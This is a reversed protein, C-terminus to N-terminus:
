FPLDNELDDASQKTADTTSAAIAEDKKPVKSKIYFVEKTKGDVKQMKRGNEDLGIEEPNFIWENYKAYAALKKKFSTSSFKLGTKQKLDEFALDKVVFNDLNKHTEEGRMEDTVMDAFFVDAWDKFSAGMESLLNRMSVNGMPPDIKKNQALYFQICQACFNYFQNWEKTDWEKFLTKGNFDDSVSRSERYENDQNFHYYDSFVVYLLRRALSPDLNNPPYNSSFAMKPVKDFNIVFRLGNKNNVELDGTIASFFFGYDLYQNCDDVLIYDTDETIGHYIFDDSTKKPDRGPIYHNKKLLQQIAKQFVSKGSGGHSESIDALKNDMAYVAWPKHPSKYTHLMYGLAFIKNILHEKQEQREEPLLNPGAINFKNAETYAIADKSSPDGLNEEFEKRWHVRSANTLFQLFMNDKAHIAIDPNGHVDKSITFQPATELLVNHEIKKNEWIFRDVDGRNIKEIAAPTIKLIANDFFMYQTDSESSSFEINFADLKNLSNANLQKSYILDRLEIPLQRSKLFGHVFTEIEVPLVKRVINGDLHVFHYGDKTHEDKIRGFGNLKLFNYFQTHRFNFKLGTKTYIKTWFQAPLANEILKQLRNSFSAFEGEKYYNVVFDKFDKCPNGRQDKKLKLYSPLMLIKIDLYTLALKQAQKVGTSDIDAIYVIEKAYTQLKRYEEFNLTESESNFWIPFYGFSRLNLGDSGGSVIFAYDVRPDKKKGTQAEGEENIADDMEENELRKKNQKFQNELLDMGYIFRAPKKGVFSFRYQKNFALPQYIKAWGEHDFAYIPFTETAGLVFAETAKCFTYDSIATLSFDHCHSAKVAPGLLALEEVTFEPKLTLLYDKAKEAEKLPRTEWTPKVETWAKDSGKVRFQSALFQVAEAFTKDTEIMFWGISNREKQDGGFDTVHYHGDKLRLSASATKEGVRAKFKKDRSTLADDVQPFVLRLIDLGNDTANIVDMWEVYAM